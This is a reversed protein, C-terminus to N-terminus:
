RLLSPRRARSRLKTVSALRSTSCRNSSTSPADDSRVLSVSLLVWVVAGDPRLYRKEMEYGRIKGAVLEAVLGLDEDLDEPHTIDQFTLELLEEEARGVLECLAPNVQLWRGDMAVLALGIPAHLQTLRFREESAALAMQATVRASADRVSSQIETEGTVANVFPRSRTECWVWSGDSHRLRLTGEHARGNAEMVSAAQSPGSEPHVLHGFRTGVLEEPSWGLTTEVSPSMYLILGTTPSVRVIMDTSLDVILRYRQESEALAGEVAKRASLDRLFASFVQREEDVAWVTLEVPFESGDRRLATLELTSDLIRSHTRGGTAVRELGARHAARQGSPIILEDLPRGRAEDARWGFTEEAAHNWELVVGDGSISVVADRATEVIGRATEDALGM